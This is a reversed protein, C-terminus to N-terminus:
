VHFFSLLLLKCDDAYYVVLSLQNVSWDSYIKKIPWDSLWCVPRSLHKILVFRVMVTCDQCVLTHRCLAPCPPIKSGEVSKMPEEHEMRTIM